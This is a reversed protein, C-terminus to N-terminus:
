PLWRRSFGIGFFWDGSETDYASNLDWQLNRNVATAFGAEVWHEDSGPRYFGAYGGYLAVADSVSWTFTPILSLTNADSTAASAAAGANVAFAVSDTLRTEGVLTAFGTVADATLSASGTPLTGAAVVSWDWGNASGVPLKVGVGLDSWQLGSPDDDGQSTLPSPLYLRLEAGALGRRLLATGEGGRTGGFERLRGGVELQLAGPAMVWAGDGLGPRDSALAPAPDRAHGSLSFCCALVLAVPLLDRGCGGPDRPRLPRSWRRSVSRRAAALAVVRDHSTGPVRM